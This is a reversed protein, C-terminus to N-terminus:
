YPIKKKFTYKSIHSFPEEFYKKLKDLKEREASLKLWLYVLDTLYRVPFKANNCKEEELIINCIFELCLCFNKLRFANHKFRYVKVRNPWEFSQKTVAEITIEYKLGIISM